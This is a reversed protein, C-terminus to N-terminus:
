HGTPTAPASERGVAPGLEAAFAAEIASAARAEFAAYAHVLARGRATLVTHGGGAGGVASEVVPFGLNEEIEKVKGWARRYSLRLETAAGALSGTSEILTLLRMRYGSMVLRGDAELWLKSRPAFEAM